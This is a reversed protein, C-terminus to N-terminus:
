CDNRYLRDVVLRSEIEATEAFTAVEVKFQIEIVSLSNFLKRRRLALDKINTISVAGPAVDLYAAIGSKFALKQADGFDAVSYGTLRLNAELAAEAPPPSPPRHPLRHHLLFRLRRHRLHHPPLILSSCTCITAHLISSSFLTNGLTFEDFRPTAGQFVRDVWEANKLTEYYLNMKFKVLISISDCEDSWWCPFDIGESPIYYDSGHYDSNYDVDHISGYDSYDGHEYDSEHDRPYFDHVNVVGGDVVSLIEVIGNPLFM